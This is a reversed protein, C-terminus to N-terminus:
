GSCALHFIILDDKGRWITNFLDNLISVVRVESCPSLFSAM